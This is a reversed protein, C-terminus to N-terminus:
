AAAGSTLTSSTSPAISRVDTGTPNTGFNASHGSDTTLESVSDTLTFVHVFWGFRYVDTAHSSSFFFRQFPVLRTASFIAPIISARAIGGPDIRLKMTRYMWVHWANRRRSTTCLQITTLRAASIRWRQAGSFQLRLPVIRATCRKAEAAVDVDAQSRTASSRKRM